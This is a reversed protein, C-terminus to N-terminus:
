LADADYKMHLFYVDVSHSIQCRCTVDVFKQLCTKARLKKSCVERANPKRRTKMRTLILIGM